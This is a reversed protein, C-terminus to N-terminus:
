KKKKPPPKKKSPTKKPSPKKKTTKKQRVSKSQKPSKSQKQLKDALKILQVLGELMKLVGSEPNETRELEIAIKVDEIAGDSDGLEHKAIGRSAYAPAFDPKLDITATHHEIAESYKKARHAVTGRYFYSMYHEFSKDAANNAAFGELDFFLTEASTKCASNLEKLLSEKYEHKIRITKTRTNLRATNIVFIGSQSTIRREAPGDIAPTYIQAEKVKLIEDISDGSKAESIKNGLPLVIVKGDTAEKEPRCAFFLAVLASETFDVLCTAAGFHQLKALTELDELQRANGERHGLRTADLLLRRHYDVTSEQIIEMERKIAMKPLTNAIRRDASSQLKWKKDAHGRYICRAGGAKEKIRDLYDAVSKITKKGAM